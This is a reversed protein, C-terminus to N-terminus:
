DSRAAEFFATLKAEDLAGDTRVGSCLDLGFPGVTRIAAAVNEPKLGGALYIPVPSQERITRSIEWNHVRGTGGLEKVALAPNGSDLLLANVHPAVAMAEDLSEPGTVHIVQMLAVGPMAERLDHYTGHTLRDVIQITNVGAARQQAVIGAADQRSTLLVSAVGPPVIAAIEAIREDPIVGPGSPMSSVFGLASAGMRIAMRAEDVSGICCVKVRPRWTIDM